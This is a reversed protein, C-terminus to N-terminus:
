ILIAMAKVGNLIDGYVLYNMLGALIESRQPVTALITVGFPPM